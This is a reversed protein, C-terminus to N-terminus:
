PVAKREKSKEGLCFILLFMGTSASRSMIAKRLERLHKPMHGVLREAQEMWLEKPTVTDDFNQLLVVLDDFLHRQAANRSYLTKLLTYVVNSPEEDGASM